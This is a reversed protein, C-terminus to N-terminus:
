ARVAVTSTGDGLRRVEIRDPIREKLEHVHSVIGVVRGGDRLSDIVDLVSELADADLSGFGEDIFLTELEVGGAEDRVTDALGLALALSAYFSEGGSLTRTDRRTGTWQDLVALGLGAKKAGSSSEDRELSFRGSSMRELRRSAAVVVSDFRERLVYTSLTIRRPNVSGAGAAADAVRIVPRTRARLDATEQESQALLERCAHVDRVRVRLSEARTRAAEHAAQAERLALHAPGPDPPDVEATAVAPVALAAANLAWAARHEEVRARLGEVDAGLAAVAQAAEHFGADRVADAAVQLAREHRSRAAHLEGVLEAAADLARAAALLGARREAVGVHGARAEQVLRSGTERATALAAARAEARSIEASLELSRAADIEVEAELDTLTAALEPLRAALADLEALEARLEAVEPAPDVEGAAARVREVEAEAAVVAAAAATRRQGAAEAARELRSLEAEDVVVGAAHAPAPHETAGCVACPEGDVLRDALEAAMGALRAQVAGLYAERAEQALDTARRLADQASVLSETAAPRDAWARLRGQAAALRDAVSARGAAALRARDHEARVAVLRRPHEDSRAMLVIREGVLAALEQDLDTIAVLQESLDAEVAEAHELGSATSRLATAADRLPRPDGSEEATDLLAETAPDLDDPRTASARSAVARVGADAAAVETLVPTLAQAREAASCRADLEAVVPAEAVLRDREAEASRRAHSAAVRELMAAHAVAATERALEAVREAEAALGAEERLVDELLDLRSRRVEDAADALEEVDFADDDGSAQRLAALADRVRADASGVQQHAERRLEALVAEVNQYHDTAFLRALVERRDDPDARLFTAFEGQPLVVVQRFQEASLNGLLRRVEDDAERVRASLLVDEGAELRWLRVTSAVTTTGSGDRKARAFTPTRRIRHRVGGVSFELEVFPEVASAFDTHLREKSASRGTVAGYLAFTIADLVTSKGAGTPGELLFLGGAAVEDLDLDYATAFPGLAGLQLRHLRM